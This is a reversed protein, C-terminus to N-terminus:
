QMGAMAQSPTRALTRIEAVASRFIEPLTRAANTLAGLPSRAHEVLLEDILRQYSQSQSEFSFKRRVRERAAEGMQKRADADNALRLLREAMTLAQAPPVLYGTVGDKIIEGTGGVATAVVPVGAASAELVVNPLGETLSSLALADLAPMLDDLDDRFPVLVFSDDLKARHIRDQLSHRLPGDGFIVFGTDPKQRIVEAAADILDAFGKEPSLRGAAGVIFKKPAPFLAEIEARASEDRSTFRDRSIANHIVSIREPQVRAWHVKVAQAESVCVVRDAARLVARDMIEYLRVRLTAWTWGRSVCVFPIGVRRAALWGVLNPKYLHCILVSANVRRLHSVVEQVSQRLNPFNLKLAIAEFGSERAKALFPEALGREPFSLFVTRYHPAPLSRALGIMQREPGGFFPSATLHVITTPSEKRSSALGRRCQPLLRPARMLQRCTWGAIAGVPTACARAIAWRTRPRAASTPCFQNLLSAGERWRGWYGMVCATKMARLAFFEKLLGRLEPPCVEEIDQPHTLIPEVPRGKALNGSLSSCETHVKVMPVLSVAVPENLMLKLWLYSDEGYVCKGHRCFGGWRRVSATRALTTPPALYALLHVLFQPSMAPTVRYTMEKLGRDRWMPQTSRGEPYILYGSSVCAVDAGASELTAVNHELYRPMWEDDADLFAVLEGRADDIGRNRAHAPGANDQRILRVRSDACRHVIEGGGDTSGDDIVLLEFDRFTQARVSDLARKIYAAKNFLPIIVTVKSM